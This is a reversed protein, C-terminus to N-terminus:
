QVFYAQVDFFMDEYNLKAFYFGYTPNKECVITDGEEMNSINSYILGKMFVDCEEVELAVLIVEEDKEWGGGGFCNVGV